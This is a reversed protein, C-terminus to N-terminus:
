PQRAMEAAMQHDVLTRTITGPEDLERQAMARLSPDTLAALAAARLTAAEDARDVGALITGAMAVDNVYGTLEAALRPAEGPAPLLPLETAYANLHDAMALPDPLFRAALAFDGQAILAPLAIRSFRSAVEPLIDVLTVFTRATSALDGLARNMSAVELWRPADYDDGFSRSSTEGALLRRLEEDRAAILAERAPPYAEALRGWEHLAFGRLHNAGRDDHGCDTHIFLLERLAAAHEGAQQAQSARHLADMVQAEADNMM